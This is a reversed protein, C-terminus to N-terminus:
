SSLRDVFSWFASCVSLQDSGTRAERYHMIESDLLDRTRTVLRSGTEESEAWLESSCILFLYEAGLALLTMSTTQLLGNYTM